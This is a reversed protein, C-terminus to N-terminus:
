VMAMDDSFAIGGMVPNYPVNLKRLARMVKEYTSSQPQIRTCTRPQKQDSDVLTELQHGLQENESETMDEESAIYYDSQAKNSGMSEDSLKNTWKVDRINTIMVTGTNFIRHTNGASNRVYGFMSAKKGRDSIKSKM